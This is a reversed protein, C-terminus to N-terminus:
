FTPYVNPDERKLREFKKKLEPDLTRATENSQKKNEPAPVSDKQEPKEQTSM